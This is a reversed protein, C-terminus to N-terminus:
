PGIKCCKEKDDYYMTGQYFEDYDKQRETCASLLLICFLFAGFPAINKNSM